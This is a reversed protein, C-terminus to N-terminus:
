FKYEISEKIEKEGMNFVLYFRLKDKKEPKKKFKLLFDPAILKTNSYNMKTLENKLMKAGETGSYEQMDLSQGIDKNEKKYGSQIYDYYSIYQCEVLDSIDSGAPHLADFDEVTRVEIKYISDNIAIRPGCVTYRNYTLDNYYTSLDDFAKGSTIVNGKLALRIGSDEKIAVISEPILYGTVFTKCFIAGSEDDKESCSVLSSLLSVMMIYMFTRMGKIM